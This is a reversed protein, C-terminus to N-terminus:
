GGNEVEYYDIDVAEDTLIAIYKKLCEQVKEETMEKDKEGMYWPYEPTYLLYDEGNFNDCATFIIGEVEEIVKQLIIALGYPLDEEYELCDDVTPEKIQKLWENIEEAYKPALAILAQLKEVANVEIDGTKIGYGYYHWTHYSM